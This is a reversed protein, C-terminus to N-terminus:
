VDRFDTLYANGDKVYYTEVGYSGAEKASVQNEIGSLSIKYQFGGAIEEEMTFDSITIVHTGLDESYEWTAETARTSGGYPTVTLKEGEPVIVRLGAPLIIKVIGNEYM